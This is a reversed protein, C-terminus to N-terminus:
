PFLTDMLFSMLLLWDLSPLYISNHEATYTKSTEYVYQLVQMSM